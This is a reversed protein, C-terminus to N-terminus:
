INNIEAGIDRLKNVINEYGRMIVEASDIISEGKACLALMLAAMGGRLDPAQAKGSFINSPYLEATSGIIDYRAGFKSLEKLYGFRREWVFDRISGGNSTLILPAIIPQLDTPFAPYPEAVVDIRREAKGSPIAGSATFDIRVGSRILVDSFSELDEKPYGKIYLNSDTILSLIAFSGAEIMDPPIEIEAGHLASGCIEIYEKHLSIKAGCKKLYEILTMIHPEKAYGFIRTVDKISASLILANVTAGVSIKKFIIDAGRSNGMVLLNGNIEAGLAEAMYIHMDIPRTDFACGGHESLSCKSFRALMAGYLYTSARIRSTLDSSPIRYVLSSTDIICRKGVRNINAGLEELIALAVKTDSINPMNNIVTVGFTSISAFIIPLAANKSGSVEIEGCLKKGGCVIFGSM